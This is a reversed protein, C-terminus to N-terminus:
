LFPLVKMSTNRIRVMGAVNTWIRISASHEGAAFLGLYAGNWVRTLYQRNDSANNDPTPRFYGNVAAGDIFLQQRCKDAANDGGRWMVITQWTIWAVHADKRLWTRAAGRIALYAGDIDPDAPFMLGNFDNSAKCGSMEGNVISRDRVMYPQIDTGALLNTADLRGDIETLAVAGTGRDAFWASADAAAMASGVNPLNPLTVDPM